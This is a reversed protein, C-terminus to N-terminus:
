KEPILFRTIGSFTFVTPSLAKIDLPNPEVTPSSHGLKHTYVYDHTYVTFVVDGNKKISYTVNMLPREDVDNAYVVFTNRPDPAYVNFPPEDGGETWKRNPLAMKYGGGGVLMWKGLKSDCVAKNADSMFSNLANIDAAIIDDATGNQTKERRVYQIPEGFIYGKYFNTVELCRAEGVKNNINERVEKTKNEIATKNRYYRYLENIENRNETHVLYAANVEEVVNAATIESADSFIKRRGYSM